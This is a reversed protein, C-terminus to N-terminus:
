LEDMDEPIQQLVDFSNSSPLEKTSHTVTKRTVQGRRRALHIFKDKSKVQKLIKSRAQHTLLVIESFIDMNTVNEIAFLYTSM